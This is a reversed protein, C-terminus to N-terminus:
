SGGRAQSHLPRIGPPRCSLRITGERRPRGYRHHDPRREKRTVLVGDMVPEEASSALGTLAASHSQRARVAALSCGAVSLILTRRAALQSLERGERDKFRSSSSHFGRPWPGRHDHRGVERPHIAPLKSKANAGGRPVWWM